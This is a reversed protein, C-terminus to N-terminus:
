IGTLTVEFKDGAGDSPDEDLTFPFLVFGVADYSSAPYSMTYVSVTSTRVPTLGTIERLISNGLGDLYEIAGAYYISKNDINNPEFIVRRINTGIDVYIPAAQGIDSFEDGTGSNAFTATDGSSNLAASDDYFVLDRYTNDADELYDQPYGLYATATGTLDKAYLSLLFRRYINVFTAPTGGYVNKIAGRLTNMTLEDGRTAYTSEFDEFIALIVDMGYDPNNIDTSSTYTGMLYKWFLLAARSTEYNWTWYLWNNAATNGYHYMGDWDENVADAGIDATGELIQSEANADFMEYQITHFLEHAPMSYINDGNSLDSAIRINDSDAWAANAYDNTIYIEIGSGGNPAPFGYTSVYASYATEFATKITNRYSSDDSTDSELCYTFHDSSDIQTYNSYLSCVSSASSPMTRIRSRSVRSSEICSKPATIKAASAVGIGLILGGALLCTPILNKKIM